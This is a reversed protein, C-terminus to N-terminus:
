PKQPEPIPIDKPRKSANTHPPPTHPTKPNHPPVAHTPNKPLSPAAETPPAAHQTTEQPKEPAPPAAESFFGNNHAEKLHEAHQAVASEPALAIAQDLAQLAESVRHQFLLTEGLYVYATASEPQRTIAQRFATEAQAFDGKTHFVHGLGIYPVDSEPLLCACGEFIDQAEQFRGLEVYFYGSELLLHAEERHIEVIGLLTQASM